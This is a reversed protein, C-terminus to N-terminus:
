KKKEKKKNIYRILGLTMNRCKDTQAHLDQLTKNNLYGIDECVYLMSKLEAASSQSYDLFKIFDIKHYRAFGEAINNMISLASRRFQSKFDFDRNLKGERSLIFIDKVLARAAQWSELDEFRKVSSM